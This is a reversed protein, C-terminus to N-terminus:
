MKEIRECVTSLLNFSAYLYDKNIIATDGEKFNFQNFGGTELYKKDVIGKNHIHINRRNIMEVLACYDLNNFVNSKYSKLQALLSGIYKGDFKSEILHNQLEELDDFNIIEQFLMSDKDKAFFIPLDKVNKRFYKKLLDFVTADFISFINIFSQRYINSLSKYDLLRLTTLFGSLLEEKEELEASLYENYKVQANIIIQKIDEEKPMVDEGDSEYALREFDYILFSELNEISVGDILYNTAYQVTMYMDSNEELNKYWDTYSINSIHTDNLEGIKNNIKNVIDNIFDSNNSFINDALNLNLGLIESIITFDNYYKDEIYNLLLTQAVLESNLESLFDFSKKYANCNVKM